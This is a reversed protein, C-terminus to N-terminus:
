VIQSTITRFSYSSSNINFFYTVHLIQVIKFQTVITILLVIRPVSQLGEKVGRRNATSKLSICSSNSTQGETERLEGDNPISTTFIGCWGIM